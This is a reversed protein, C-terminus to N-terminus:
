AIQTIIDFIFDNVRKGFADGLRHRFQGMAIIRQLGAPHPKILEVPPIAIRRGPHLGAGTKM